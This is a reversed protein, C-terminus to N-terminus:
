EVGAVIQEVLRIVQQQGRTSRYDDRAERIKQHIRDKQDLFRELLPKLNAVNVKPAELSFGIDSESLFFGQIPQDTTLPVLIQPAGFLVAESFSNAGGHHFFASAQPLLDPLPLYPEVVVHTSTTKLKKSGVILKLKSEATSRIIAETVQPFDAPDLVSGFSLVAFTQSSKALRRSRCSNAFDGRADSSHIPGVLHTREPFHPTEGVMMKTTFVVQGYPSLLELHKFRSKSRISELFGSLDRALHKSIKLYTTQFKEPAILKLGACFGIYPIRLECAVLPAGYVLLDYIIADPKLSEIIKLVKKYQFSLPAVLFSHYARWVEDKSAALTALEAPSRLVGLPLPPPSIYNLDARRIQAEDESGLPSPLPLLVPDHGLRKAELALEIAPHLHGKSGSESVQLSAILVRV